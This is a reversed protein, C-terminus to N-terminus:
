THKRRGSRPTEESGHAANTAVFTITDWANHIGIFVLGLSVAAILALATPTDRSLIIAAVLLTLYSLLPLVAYWV